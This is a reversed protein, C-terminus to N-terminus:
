SPLDVTPKGLVCEVVSCLSRTSAKINTEYLGYDILLWPKTKKTKEQLIDVSRIINKM